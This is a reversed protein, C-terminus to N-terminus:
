GACSYRVLDEAELVKRDLEAEHHVLANRNDGAVV